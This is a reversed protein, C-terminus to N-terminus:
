IGGRRGAPQMPTSCKSVEHAEIGEEPFFSALPVRGLSHCLNLVFGAIYYTESFATIESNEKEGSEGIGEDCTM